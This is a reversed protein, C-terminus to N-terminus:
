EFNSMSSPMTRQDSDPGIGHYWQSVKELESQTATGEAEEAKVAIVIHSTSTPKFCM